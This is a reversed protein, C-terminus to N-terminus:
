YNIRRFFKFSKTFSGGDKEGGVMKVIISRSTCNSPVIIESYCPNNGLRTDTIFNSKSDILANTEGDYLYISMSTFGKSKCQVSDEMLISTVEITDGPKVTSGEKPSVTINASTAAYGVVTFLLMMITTLILTSFKKFKM